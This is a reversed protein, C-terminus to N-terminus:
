PEKQTLHQAALDKLCARVDELVHDEGVVRFRARLEKAIAEEDLGSRHLEEVIQAAPNLIHVSDRDSDYIMQNKGLAKRILNSTM